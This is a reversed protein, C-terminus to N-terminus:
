LLLARFRHKECLTLVAAAGPSGYFIKEPLSVPSFFHYLVSKILLFCFETFPFAVGMSRLM